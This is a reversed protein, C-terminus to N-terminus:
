GLFRTPTVQPLSIMVFYLSWPVWTQPEDICDSDMIHFLEPMKVSIGYTGYKNEIEHDELPYGQRSLISNTPFKEILVLFKKLSSHM